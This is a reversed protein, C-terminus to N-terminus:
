NPWGGVERTRQVMRAYVLIDHITDDSPMRGDILAAMARGMKGRLYFWIGLETAEDDSVTSGTRGMAQALDNGIGILDHARGGGGYEATKATMDEIEARAKAVWWEELSQPTNGDGGDGAGGTALRHIQAPKGQAREQELQRARIAQDTQVQHFLPSSDQMGDVIM